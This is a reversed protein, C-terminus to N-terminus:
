PNAAVVTVPSGESKTEAFSTKSNVVGLCAYFAYIGAAIAVISIGYTEDRM